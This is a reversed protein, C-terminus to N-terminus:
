AGRAQHLFGLNKGPQRGIRDRVSTCPNFGELKAAVTAACGETIKHLYVLPTNGILETVDNAIKVIPESDRRRTKLRFGKKVKV